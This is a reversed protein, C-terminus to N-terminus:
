QFRRIRGNQSEFYKIGRELRPEDGFYIYCGYSASGIVIAVGIVICLIIVVKSLQSRKKKPSVTAADPPTTAPKEQMPDSFRRPIAMGGSRQQQPLANRVGLKSKGRPVAIGKGCYPCQAVQGCYSDDAEVTQGCQPCKFEFNPEQAFRPLPVRAAENEAAFM